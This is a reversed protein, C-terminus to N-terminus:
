PDVRQEIIWRKALHKDTKAAEEAWSVRLCPWVFGRRCDNCPASRDLQPPDLDAVITFQDPKRGRLLATFCLEQNNATATAAKSLVAEPRSAVKAKKEASEFMNALRQLDAATIGELIILQNWIEVVKPVVQLPTAAPVQYTNHPSIHPRRMPILSRWSGPQPQRSWQPSPQRTSVPSTSAQSGAESRPRKSGSPKEPSPDTSSSQLYPRKGSSQRQGAFTPTQRVSHQTVDLAAIREELARIDDFVNDAQEKANTVLRQGAQYIKEIDVPQRRIDSDLDAVRIALDDLRFRLLDVKDPLEQKVAALLRQAEACRREADRASEDLHRQIEAARLLDKVLEARELAVEHARAKDTELQGLQKAAEDSITKRLNLLEQKEKENERRPDFVPRPIALKAHWSAITMKSEQQRVQIARMDLERMKEEVRDKQRQLDESEQRLRVTENDNSRRQSELERESEGVTRLRDDLEQQRAQVAEIVAKEGTISSLLTDVSEALGQHTSAFDTEKLVNVVRELKESAAAARQLQEQFSDM